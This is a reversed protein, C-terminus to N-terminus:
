KYPKFTECGKSPRNMLLPVFEFSLKPSIKIIYKEKKKNEFQNFIKELVKEERGGGEGEWEREGAGERERWMILILSSYSCTM